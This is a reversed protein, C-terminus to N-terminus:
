DLILRKIGDRLVPVQFNILLGLRKGSLKLYTLLQAKHIPLLQEVAKIEVILKEAVVLDLRYACELAPGKYIVPLPQQRQFPIDRRHLEHCLAAEYASELLGPGLHRHVDIAAAIISGSLRSGWRSM